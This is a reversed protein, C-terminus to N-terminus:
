KVAAFGAQLASSGFWVSVKASGACYVSGDFNLTPPLGLTM